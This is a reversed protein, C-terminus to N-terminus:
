LMGLWPTEANGWPEGFGTVDRLARFGNGMNGNLFKIGAASAITLLRGDTFRRSCPSARLALGSHLRLPRDLAVTRHGHMVYVHACM